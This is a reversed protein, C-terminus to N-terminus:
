DWSHQHFHLQVPNEESHWQLLQAPRRLLGTDSIRAGSVTLRVLSWQQLHDGWESQWRCLPATLEVWPKSPLHLWQQPWPVSHTRSTNLTNGTFVLSFAQWTDQPVDTWNCDMMCGSMQATAATVNALRQRAMRITSKYCCAANHHCATWLCCQLRKNYYSTHSSRKRSRANGGLM